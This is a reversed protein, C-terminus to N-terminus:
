LCVVIFLCIYDKSDLIEHLKAVNIHDCLELCKRESKLYKENKLQRIKFRSMKKLAYEKNTEQYFILLQNNVFFFVKEIVLFTESFSGSGISKIVEYKDM